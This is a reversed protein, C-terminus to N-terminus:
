CFLKATLLIGLSRRGKATLASGVLRTAVVVAYFVPLAMLKPIAGTTQNM